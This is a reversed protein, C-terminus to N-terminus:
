SWVSKYPFADKINQHYYKGISPAAVMEDYIKEPVNYYLYKGGTSLTVLLGNSTYSVSSIFSSQTTTSSRTTEIAPTEVQLVPEKAQALEKKLQAIEQRLNAESKRRKRSSLAAAVIFSPVGIAASTSYANNASEELRSEFEKEAAARGIDYGQMRGDALGDFVGASYGKDYESKKVGQLNNSNTTSVGYQPSENNKFEYPCDIDGDGDMDSHSHAAYGHHFHYEGASRDYHGGASDTKGSHATAQIPLMTSVIAASVFFLYLKRKM